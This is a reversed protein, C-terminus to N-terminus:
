WRSCATVRGGARSGAARYAAVSAVAYGTAATPVGLRPALPLGVGAVLEYGLHGAMGLVGLRTWPRSSM